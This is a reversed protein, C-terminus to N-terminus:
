RGLQGAVAAIEAAVLQAREKLFSKYRSKTTGASKLADYPILHSEVRGRLETESLDKTEKLIWQLYRAPDKKSLARNSGKTLLVGNLGHNIEETNFHAKLFERPFVHHRDLNGTDELTRITSADLTDGTVWDIPTRQMAIAAVARGLRKRRIWQLPKALEETTPLSHETSNFIVLPEDYHGTDKIQVLCRRLGKFDDFLRDNAQAEYRDTLFARWLYASILKNATGKRAAKKIAQLDDQLAAIVYVPPLAPLTEKTAGGHKAVIALAADLNKQLEDLRENGSQEEDKFLNHLAKEYHQEKPPLNAKLCAVKLLWEGIESIAKEEDHSFYHTTETSESHFDSIRMRLDEEHFGQAIAVVIDFRKITLSSKNTEVFIDIAVTPDTEAPLACYQLKRELLLQERLRRVANEIRRTAGDGEQCANECWDWIKGPEDASDENASEGGEEDYLIDLPVFNGHFAIEPNRVAHGTASSDLYSIIQKVEMNRNKLDEVEIYFKRGPATGRLANWLSTLRQQGDLVLEQVKTPDVAGAASGKLTRSVFQPGSHSTELILFIGTPRNEFLAMLYDAIRQNDWVFSRQFSPLAISGNDAMKLWDLISRDDYRAIKSIPM